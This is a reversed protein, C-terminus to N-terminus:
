AAESRVTYGLSRNIAYVALALTFAASALLIVGAGLAAIGQMRDAPVRIASYAAWLTMLAGTVYHPAYRFLRALPIFHLGVIGVTASVGYVDLHLRGLIIWAAFVAIWEFANIWGFARGLAPNRPPRPWRSAQRHLYMAGSALALVVAAIYAANAANLMQEAYLRLLLWLAGFGTMIMAGNARGHLQNANEIRLMM